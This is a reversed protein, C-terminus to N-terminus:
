FSMPLSPAFTGDFPDPRRRFVSDKVDDSSLVFLLQNIGDGIANIPNVNPPVFYEAAINSPSFFLEAAVNSPPSYFEAAVNSPPSYFKTRAVAADLLLERLYDQAKLLKSTNKKHDDSGELNVSWEPPAIRPDRRPDGGSLESAFRLKLAGLVANRGCNKRPTEPPHFPYRM